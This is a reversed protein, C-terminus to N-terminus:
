KEYINALFKKQRKLYNKILPQNSVFMSHLISCLSLYVRLSPQSRGCEINALTSRAIGLQKAFLEQSMQAKRCVRFTEFDFVLCWKLSHEM